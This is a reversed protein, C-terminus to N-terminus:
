NSTDEHLRERTGAVLDLCVREGSSRSLSSRREFPNVTIPRTGSRRRSGGDSRGLLEPRSHSVVLCRKGTLLDAVKQRLHVSISTAHLSSSVGTTRQSALYPSSRRGAQALVHVIIVRTRLPRTMVHPASAPEHHGRLAGRVAQGEASVM